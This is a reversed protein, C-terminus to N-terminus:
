GRAASNAAQVRALFVAWPDIENWPALGLEVARKNVGGKSEHWASSAEERDAGIEDEWRRGNLWTAPYPVFQPETWGARQAGIAALMREVLADDPKAAAFAARAADKSVKRPYQKWFRLFRADESVSTEPITRPARTRKRKETDTDTDTHASEASGHQRTSVSASMGASAMKARHRKQALNNQERREDAARLDRYKAHNLVRWGGDIEDIRRGDHDKTRSDPDPGLFSAIAERADEVPVRARHALGPVSCLVRGWQDCMALMTVWVLRTRDPAFWITSDLIGTSLKTFTASM